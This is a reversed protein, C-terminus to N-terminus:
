FGGRLYLEELINQVFIGIQGTMLYLLILLAWILVMCVLTLGMIGVAKGTSFDHTTRVQLFLLCITWAMSGLSVLRYLGTEQRSLVHSLIIGPVTFVILPVCAYASAIAVDRLSGEGDALTAVGWNAFIWTAWIILYTWVEDLIRVYETQLYMRGRFGFGTGYVWAIRMLIALAILVSASSLRGKGEYKLRWYVTSPRRLMQLGLRWPEYVAGGAPMRSM